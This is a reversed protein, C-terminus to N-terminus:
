LSHQNILDTIYSLDSDLTDKCLVMEVATNYDLDWVSVQKAVIWADEGILNVPRQFLELQKGM